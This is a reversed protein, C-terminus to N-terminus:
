FIVQLKNAKMTLRTIECDKEKAACELVQIKCLLNDREKELEKKQCELMKLRKSDEPMCSAMSMSKSGINQKSSCIEELQRKLEDRQM